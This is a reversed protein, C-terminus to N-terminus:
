HTLATHTRGPDAAIGAKVRESKLWGTTIVGTLPHTYRVQTWGPLQALIAVKDGEVIHKGMLCGQDPATHLLSRGPMAVVGPGPPKSDGSGTSTDHCAPTASPQGTKIGATPPHDELVKIADAMIADPSRQQCATDITMKPGLVLREARDVGWRTGRKSLQVRKMQLRGDQILLDGNAQRAVACVKAQTGDVWARSLTIRSDDPLGSAPTNRALDVLTARVPDRQSLERAQTLPSVAWLLGTMLPIFLRSM